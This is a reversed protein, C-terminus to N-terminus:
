ACAAAQQAFRLLEQTCQSSWFIIAFVKVLEDSVLKLMGFQVLGQGIHDDWREIEFKKLRDDKRRILNNSDYDHDFQVDDFYIYKPVSTKPKQQM